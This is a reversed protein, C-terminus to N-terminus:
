TVCWPNQCFPSYGELFYTNWCWESCVHQVLRSKDNGCVEIELEMEKFNWISFTLMGSSEYMAVLFDLFFGNLIFNTQRSKKNSKVLTAKCSEWLQKGTIFFFQLARPEYTSEVRWECISQFSCSTWLNVVPRIEEEKINDLFILLSACFLRM